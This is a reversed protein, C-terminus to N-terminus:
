PETPMASGDRARQRTTVTASIAGALLAVKGAQLLLHSLTDGQGSVHNWVHLAESAAYGIAGALLLRWGAYWRSSSGRAGAAAAAVLGLLGVWILWHGAVLDGAEEAGGHEAHRRLDLAIGAAVVAVGLWTAALLRRARDDPM